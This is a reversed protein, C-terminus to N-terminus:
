FPLRVVVRVPDPGTPDVPDVSVVQVDVRSPPNAEFQEDTMEWAFPGDFSDLFDLWDDASPYYGDRDELLELRYVLCTAFRERLAADPGDEQAELRVEYTRTM